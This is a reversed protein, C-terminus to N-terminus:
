MRPQELGKRYASHLAQLGLWGTSIKTALSNAYKLCKRSEENDAMISKVLDQYKETTELTNHFRICLMLHIKNMM